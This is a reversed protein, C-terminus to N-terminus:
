LFTNSQKFKYIKNIWELFDKEDMNMKMKNLDKHVWQINDLEYGKNSDRRDLSATQRLHNSYKDELIIKEGSLACLQNQKIFQNWADKITINFSLNRNRAGSKINGFYTGNIKQHGTLRMCGCSKCEGNKLNHLRIVKKNGCDCKCLWYSYKHKSSILPNFYRKLITIHGFKKGIFKNLNHTIHSTKKRIPINLKKCYNAITQRSVKLINSTKDLSFRKEVYLQKLKNADM